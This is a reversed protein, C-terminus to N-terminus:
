VIDRYHQYLQPVSSFEHLRFSFGCKTKKIQIMLQSKQDNTEAGSKASTQILQINRISIKLIWSDCFYKSSHIVMPNYEGFGGKLVQLIYDKNIM